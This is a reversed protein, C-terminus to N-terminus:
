GPIRGQFPQPVFGPGEPGPTIQFQIAAQFTAPFKPKGSTVSAQMEPDIGADNGLAKPFDGGEADLGM